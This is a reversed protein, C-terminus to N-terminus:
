RGREPPRRIARGRTRCRTGSGMMPAGSNMMLLGLNTMACHWAPMTPLMGDSFARGAECSSSQNASIVSVRGGPVSIVGILLRCGEGDVLDHVLAVVPEFVVYM